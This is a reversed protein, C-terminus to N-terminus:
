KMLDWNNWFNDLSEGSQRAQALRERRRNPGSHRVWLSSTSFGTFQLLRGNCLCPRERRFLRLVDTSPLVLFNKPPRDEGFVYFMDPDSSTEIVRRKAIKFWSGGSAYVRSTKVQIKRLGGENTLLVVDVGTDAAPAFVNKVWSKSLLESMVAYEGM